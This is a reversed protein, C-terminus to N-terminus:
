VTYINKKMKKKLVELPLYMILYPFHFLILMTYYIRGKNNANMIQGNAIVEKKISRYPNCAVKFLIRNSLHRGEM